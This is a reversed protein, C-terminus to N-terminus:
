HATKHLFKMFHNMSIACWLLQRHDAVGEQHESWRAKLWQHDIYPLSDIFSPDDWERLWASLPIGFGKKPRNIIAEPLKEKFASKLLFKTTQGHLKYSSPLSAAFDVLDNDLFPARAELSVMMSARDVKTLIDNPLYLRSYFELTRDILTDSDSSSWVENVERYTDEISIAEGFLQSLSDPDLPGLWVPNWLRKPYSLGRLTRKLRFELGMNRDSPHLAEVARRGARHLCDPILKSYVEAPKLARFPDYGAFLEDGGDGGLAVKVHQQAFRALLYTPLISPDGLPEDLGDLVPELLNRAADLDLREEYHKTGFHRAVLRAYESEDFSRENFGITFTHIESLTYQEAVASLIISSDIGGSLFVGLPVDSMLRRGVAQKVLQRLQHELESRPLNAHSNSSIKFEWYSSVQFHSTPINLLLQHGPALKSVSEVITSPAPIFGLAFLKAMGSKSIKRSVDPHHLLSKLESAFAFLGPQACFFLPKEGFRDRALFLTAKKSDFVAFAFMGNLRIPLSDGWEEYGHVLVETDSHDTCFVHGKAILEARLERHNYIEGNFVVQISGDENGMPQHGGDIDVISLRRHGLFVGLAPHHYIGSDDPGRHALSDTMRTLIHRGGLGAFGAVGCM